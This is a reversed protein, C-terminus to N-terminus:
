QVGILANIGCGLEVERIEEECKIVTLQRCHVKFVTQHHCPTTNNAFDTDPLSSVSVSIRYIISMYRYKNYEM